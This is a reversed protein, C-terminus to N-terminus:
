RRRREREREQRARLDHFRGFGYKRGEDVGQGVLARRREQFHKAQRYDNAAHRKRGEFRQCRPGYTAQNGAIGEAEVLVREEKTHHGVDERCELHSQVKLISSSPAESTHKSSKHVHYLIRQSIYRDESTEFENFKTQKNNAILLAALVLLQHLFVRAQFLADSANSVLKGDSLYKVVYLRTAVSFCSDM